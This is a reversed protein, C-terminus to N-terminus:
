MQTPTKQKVATADKSFVTLSCKNSYKILSVQASFRTHASQISFFTVMKRVAQVKIGKIKVSKLSILKKADEAKEFCVM